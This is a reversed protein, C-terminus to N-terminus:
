RRPKKPRTIKDLQPALTLPWPESGCSQPIGFAMTDPIGTVKRDEETILSAFILYRTGRRFIFSEVSPRGLHFVVIEISSPPPGCINNTAGIM